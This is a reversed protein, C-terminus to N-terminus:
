MVAFALFNGSASFGANEDIKSENGRGYVIFLKEEFKPQM